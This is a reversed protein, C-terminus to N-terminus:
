CKLANKPPAGTVSSSPSHLSAPVIQKRAVNLKQENAKIGFLNYNTRIEERKEEYVVNYGDMKEEKEEKEEKVEKKGKTAGSGM